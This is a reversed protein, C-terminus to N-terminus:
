TENQREREKKSKIKKLGEKQILVQIAHEHAQFDTVPYWSKDGARWHVFVKWEEGTYITKVFCDIVWQVNGASDYFFGEKMNKKQAALTLAVGNEGYYGMNSTHLLIDDEEENNENSRGM